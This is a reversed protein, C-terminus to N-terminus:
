GRVGTPDGDDDYYVAQPVALVDCGTGGAALRARPSTRTARREPQIERASVRLNPFDQRLEACMRLRNGTESIMGCLGM